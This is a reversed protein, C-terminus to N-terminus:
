VVILELQEYIKDININNYITKTSNNSFERDSLQNSMISDIKEQSYGRTKRLRESRIEKTSSVYWIEDCLEKYGAEIIIASEIIFIDTKAEEIVQRIENQIYQYVFPHIISNLLLLQDLNNFVIEGLRRRNINGGADLIDNGFCHVIEIYTNAGKEMAIHGIKDAIVIHANYKEKMIQAVTSKGSGVGGTLGIIKM